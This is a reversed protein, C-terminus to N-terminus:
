VGSVAWKNLNPISPRVTAADSRSFAECAAVEDGRYTAM